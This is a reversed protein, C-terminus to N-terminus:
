NSSYVGYMPSRIYQVQRYTCYPLLASAGKIDGVNERGSQVEFRVVTSPLPSRLALFLAYIANCGANRHPLVHDCYM